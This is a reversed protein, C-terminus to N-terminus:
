RWWSLGGEVGELFYRAISFYLFLTLADNLTANLPASISAPDLGMRKALIPLFFGITNAVLVALVMTLTTIGVLLVEGTRLWTTLAVVGALPLALGVLAMGMERLWVRLLLRVQGADLEGTALARIVFSASQSGTNGATGNLIPIFVALVVMQQLLWEYRHLVLSSANALLALGALWPLRKRIREGLSLSFYRDEPDAVAAFRLFDEATEEELVDLVDDVTIVGILRGERDVVPLALLDYRQILRAAREQDDWASVAIPERDILDGVRTDWPARLLRVLSLSGLLRRERDIVYVEHLVEEPFVQAKAILKKIVDRVRERAHAEVFEPSMLRGASGEPYQLIDLIQRREEPTLTKLLKRVVSAPMEEFLETRDDPDLEELIEHVERDTFSLLLREQLDPDLESFVHAALDKPLLRFLVVAEGPKLAELIEVIDRPWMRELVAKLEKFRRNQLADRIEPLLLGATQLM